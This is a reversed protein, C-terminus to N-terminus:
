TATLVFSGEAQQRSFVNEERQPAVQTVKDCKWLLLHQRTAFLSMQYM